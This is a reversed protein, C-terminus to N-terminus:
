LLARGTRLAYAYDPRGNREALVAARESDYAAEIHQISWRGDPERGVIAYDAHPSGSEMVHPFPLEDNYAPLGVSGVNVIMKGSPLTKTQFVHSHGCFIYPYTFAELESELEEPSKAEVGKESVKELLYRDNAEPTGHCFFLNEFIQFKPFAGIWELMASTLKPKVFTFTASDVQEQLLIEDCNGMLHVIRSDDMLLEVTGIPDIPGFLSDGLNVIRDIGRKSIDELVAQLAPANGHIDSIVATYSTMFSEKVEKM